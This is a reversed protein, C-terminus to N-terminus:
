FIRLMNRKTWTIQVAAWVCFICVCVCVCVAVNHNRQFARERKAGHNRDLLVGKKMLDSIKKKYINKWEKKDIAKPIKSRNRLFKSCCKLSGNNDMWKVCVSRSKSYIHVYQGKYIKFSIKDVGTWMYVPHLEGDFNMCEYTWETDILWTNHQKHNKTSIHKQAAHISEVTHVM